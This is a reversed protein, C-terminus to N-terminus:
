SLLWKLVISMNKSDMAKGSEIRCLTSHNVGIKKAADRVNLKSAWRWQKLVISLNNM